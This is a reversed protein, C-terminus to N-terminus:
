QGNNDLDKGKQESFIINYISEPSDEALVAINKPKPKDIITEVPPTFDGVTPKGM